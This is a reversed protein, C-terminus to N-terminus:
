DTAICVKEQNAWLLFSADERAGYGSIAPKPNYRDGNLEGFWKELSWTERGCGNKSGFNIRLSIVALHTAELVLLLAVAKDIGLVFWALIGTSDASADKVCDRCSRERGAVHAVCRKPQTATM